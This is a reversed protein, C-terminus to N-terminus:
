ISGNGGLSSEQNGGLPGGLGGIGMGIGIGVGLGGDVEASTKQRKADRGASAGGDEQDVGFIHGVASPMFPQLSNQGLSSLPPIPPTENGDMLPPAAMAPM